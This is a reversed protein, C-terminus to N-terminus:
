RRAARILWLVLAIPLGVMVAVLRGGLSGLIPTEDGGLEAHMQAMDHPNVPGPTPPMLHRPVLCPPGFIGTSAGVLVTGPPIDGVELLDGPHVITGVEWLEFGNEDHGRLALECPIIAGDSRHIRVGEPRPM